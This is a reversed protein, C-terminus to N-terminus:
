RPIAIMIKDMRGDTQRVRAKHCFSLISGINEYWMSYRENQPQRAVDRKLYFKGEWHGKSFRRSRGLEAQFTEVTLALSLRETIALLSDVM